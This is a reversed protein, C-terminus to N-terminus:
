PGRLRDSQAQPPHQEQARRRGAHHLHPRHLPEQGPGRQVQPRAQPRDRDGRRAGLRARPRRCRDQPAAPPDRRRPLKGPPGPGQLRQGQRHLFRAPRFLGVRVPLAHAPRPRAPPYPGERGLDIFVAQGPKVDLIDDFGMINLSVTESAFAYAPRLGGRRVGYSLPKIGHPDRFALLGQGAIYAVVAYSGRVVRYVAAVAQFVHEPTLERPETRALEVAFINLIAEVDCDSSLLRRHRDFLDAKLAKYNTVNGNHAMVIGFPSNVEFPQADEGTGSGVTPYRTHGLGVDGTLRAIAEPTFLDRVLGNGKVTHFRGDYTVIGASDQGRHQIALLGQYLDRVVHDNGWLGIVGCM